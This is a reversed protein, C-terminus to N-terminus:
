PDDGFCYAASNGARAAYEREASTPLRYCRGARQEQTLGSLKDCFVRADDWGVSDVPFDSTALGRVVDKGGGRASFVSPGAGRFPRLYQGQTVPCEAVYYPRVIPVRVLVENGRHGPETPPSGMLFEGRPPPDIRVFRMGLSNTFTPPWLFQREMEAA